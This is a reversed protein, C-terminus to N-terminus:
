QLEFDIRRILEIASRCFALAPKGEGTTSGFHYDEPLNEGAAMISLSFRHASKNRLDYLEKTVGQLGSTKVFEPRNENRFVHVYKSLVDISQSDAVPEGTEYDTFRFYATLASTEFYSYAANFFAGVLWRFHQRDREASALAFFYECERLKDDLDPISALDIRSLWNDSTDIPDDLM